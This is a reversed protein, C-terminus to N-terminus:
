GPKWNRCWWVVRRMSALGCRVPWPRCCTTTSTTGTATAITYPPLSRPESHQWSGSWPALRPSIPWGCSLRHADLPLRLAAVLDRKPVGNDDGDRTVRTGSTITIPLLEAPLHDVM